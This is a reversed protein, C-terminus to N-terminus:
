ILVSDAPTKLLAHIFTGYDMANSDKRITLLQSPFFRLFHHLKTAPPGDITISLRETM